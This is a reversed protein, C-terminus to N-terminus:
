SCMYYIYLGMEILCKVLTGRIIKFTCYHYIYSAVTFGLYSGCQRCSNSYIIVYFILTKSFASHYFFFLNVSGTSNLNKFTGM